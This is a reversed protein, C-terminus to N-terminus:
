AIPTLQQAWTWLTDAIDNQDTTEIHRAMDRMSAAIEDRATNTATLKEEVRKAVERCTRGGCTGRICVPKAPCELCEKLLTAM